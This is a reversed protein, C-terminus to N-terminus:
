IECLKLFSLKNQMSIVKVFFHLIQIEMSPNKSFQPDMHQAGVAGTSATGIASYTSPHMMTNMCAHLNHIAAHISTYMFM